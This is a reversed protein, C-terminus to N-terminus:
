GLSRQHRHSPVSTLPTQADQKKGSPPTVCFAPLRANAGASRTSALRTKNELAQSAAEHLGWIWAQSQSIAHLALPVSTEDSPRTTHMHDFNRLLLPTTTM